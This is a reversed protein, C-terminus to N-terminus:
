IVWQTAVTSGLVNPLVTAVLTNLSDSTPLKKKKFIKRYKPYPVVLLTDAGLTRLVWFRMVV